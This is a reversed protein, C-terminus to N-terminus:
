LLEKNNIFISLNFQKTFKDKKIIQILNSRILNLRSKFPEDFYDDKSNKKLSKLKIINIKRQLKIIKKQYNRAINNAQKIILKSDYLVNIIKNKEIIAKHFRVVYKRFDNREFRLQNLM